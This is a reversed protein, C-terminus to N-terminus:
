TYVHVHVHYEGAPKFYLHTEMVTQATSTLTPAKFLLSSLMLM